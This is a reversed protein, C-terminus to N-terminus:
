ARGRFCCPLFQDHNQRIGKQPHSSLSREVLVWGVKLNEPILERRAWFVVGGGGAGELGRGGGVEREWVGWKGGM